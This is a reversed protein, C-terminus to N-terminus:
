LGADPGDSVPTLPQPPVPPTNIGLGGPQLEWVAAM